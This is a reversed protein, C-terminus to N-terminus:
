RNKWADPDEHWPEDDMDDILFDGAVTDDDERLIEYYVAKINLRTDKVGRGYGLFLGIFLALLILAVALSMEM